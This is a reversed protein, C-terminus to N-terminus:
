HTHDAPALSQIQVMIQTRAWWHSWVCAKIDTFGTEEPIGWYEKFTVAGSICAAWEESNVAKRGEEDAVM